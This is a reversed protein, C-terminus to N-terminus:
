WYRSGHRFPLWEQQPEVRRHVLRHLAPGRVVQAAEVGLDLENQPPLELLLLPEGGAAVVVV